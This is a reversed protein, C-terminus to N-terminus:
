SNEQELSPLQADAVPATRSTHIAFTIGGLIIAIEICILIISIKEPWKRLNFDLNLFVISIIALFVIPIFTPICVLEGVCTSFDWVGYIFVLFPIGYGIHDKFRFNLGSLWVPVVSVLLSIALLMLNASIPEIFASVGSYKGNLIGNVVLAIYVGLNALITFLWVYIKRVDQTM